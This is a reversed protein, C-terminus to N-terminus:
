EDEDFTFLDHERDIDELNTTFEPAHLVEDLADAGILVGEMGRIYDYEPEKADAKDQEEKAQAEKIKAEEIQQQAEMMSKQAAQISAKEDDQHLARDRDDGGDAYEKLNDLDVARNGTVSFGKSALDKARLNKEIIRINSQREIREMVDNSTLGKQAKAFPPEANKTRAALYGTYSGDREQVYLSFAESQEGKTRAAIVKWGDIEGAAAKTVAEQEKRIKADRYFRSDELAQALSFMVSPNISNDPQVPEKRVQELLDKEKTHEINSQKM